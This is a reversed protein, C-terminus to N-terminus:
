RTHGACELGIAGNRCLYLRQEESINKVDSFDVGNVVTGSNKGTRFDIFDAPDHPTAAKPDKVFFNARAVDAGALNAASLDAGILDASSLNADRLDAGRLNTIRLFGGSLDSYRLSAGRLNAKFLNANPMWQSLRAGQLDSEKLDAGNLCKRSLDAWTDDSKGLYRDEHSEFRGNPGPDTALDVGALSIVRAKREEFGSIKCGPGEQVLGLDHLFYVLRLKGILDLQDLALNARAQAVAKVAVVNPDQQDGRLNAHIVLEAVKDVFEETVAARMRAAEIEAQQERFREEIVIAGLALVAPVVLLSLWDWLTKDKLGLWSRQPRFDNGDPTAL